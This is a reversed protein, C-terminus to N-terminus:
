SNKAAKKAPEDEKLDSMAQAKQYLSKVVRNPWAKVTALTVPHREMAADLKFLCRSVLLPEVEALGNVGALKGEESFRGAAMAQNKYMTGTESDAEVLIYQDAGIKFPGVTKETLDYDNSDM